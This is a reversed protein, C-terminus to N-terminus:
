QALREKRYDDFYIAMPEAMHDRYLGFRFDVEPGDDPYGLPGKWDVVPAGDLWVAVAGDTLGFRLRYRLDVWRGQIPQAHRYATTRGAASDITIYLVGRRYRQAVIPSRKLCVVCRQHWQATVLRTDTVPFDAPVYMSFAYEHTEGFRPNLGDAEQVETRETPTGDVGVMAVDGERVEVRLAGTGSHVVDRQLSVRGPTVYRLNWLPGLTATEFADAVPETSAPTAAALLVLATALRAERWSRRRSSPASRGRRTDISSM